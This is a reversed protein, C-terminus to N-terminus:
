PRQPAGPANTGPKGLLVPLISIGTVDAAPQAYGIELATPAFDPASWPARSIRGAPVRGPWRVIM